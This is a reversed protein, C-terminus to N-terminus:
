ASSRKGRFKSMANEYMEELSVRQHNLYLELFEMGHGCNPCKLPDYGFSTLIATRWQTFSLFFKKKQRSVARHLRKDQERHRAYLGGYRIM